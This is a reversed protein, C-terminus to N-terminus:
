EELQGSSIRDIEAVEKESLSWAGAAANGDIQEAKTAGAIVSATPSKALLWAFALDLLSHDRDRAFRELAEIMSWNTDTMYKEQLGTSGAFRTGQPIHERSYKGSLLGSALPFYPLLGLGSDRGEPLVDDEIKRDLLSYEDQFSVFTALGHRDSVELAERLQKASFNSCGIFRVKGERVLQNLAILTEEIPTSDDPAHMQYLDIVDTKLRTLSAEIAKRVYAAKGGKDTDSMAMGFKTALVIDKRRKGLVKGLIEESGGKNGYIDATDFLNLGADLARHIVKESADLDLRGGFNNCGLGVVSVSLDSNGLTRHEM